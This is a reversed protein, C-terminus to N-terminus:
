NDAGAVRAPTKKKDHKRYYNRLRKANEYCRNSCYEENPRIAVFFKGCTSHLCRRYKRMGSLDLWTLLYCAHLLSPFFWFNRWEGRGACQCVLHCDKLYRNLIEESVEKNREEGVALSFFRQFESAAWVFAELPERYNRLKDREYKPNIFYKSFWTEHQEKLGKFIYREPEEGAPAWSWYREVNALGLYGWKKVFKLIEEPKKLDLRALHLYPWENWGEPRTPRKRVRDPAFAFDFPQYYRVEKAGEGAAIYPVGNEEVLEYSDLRSWVTSKPPLVHGRTEESWRM